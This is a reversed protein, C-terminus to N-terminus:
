SMRQVREVVAGALEVEVLDVQQKQMVCQGRGEVAGEVGAARELCEEGLAARDPHAVEHALVEFAQQGLRGDNRGHVLDLEVRVELLRRQLAQVGLVADGSLRPRGEAAAPPSFLM